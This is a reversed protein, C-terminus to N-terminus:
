EVNPKTRHKLRKLIKKLSVAIIRGTLVSLIGISIPTLLIQINSIQINKTLVLGLSVGLVGGILISGIILNKYENTQFYHFLFGVLVFIAIIHISSLQISASLVM